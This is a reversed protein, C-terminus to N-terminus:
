IDGFIPDEVSRGRLATKPTFELLDYYKINDRVRDIARYFAPGTCPSFFAVACLVSSRCVDDICPVISPDKTIVTVRDIDPDSSLVGLVYSIRTTFNIDSLSENGRWTVKGSSSGVKIVTEQGTSLSLVSGHTGGLRIEGIMKDPNPPLITDLPIETCKYECPFDGYKSLSASLAKYDGFSFGWFYARNVGREIVFRSITPLVKRIGLSQAAYFTSAFDVLLIHM